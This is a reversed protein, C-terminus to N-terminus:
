PNIQVFPKEQDTQDKSDRVLIAPKQRNWNRDNTIAILGGRNHTDLVIGGSPGGGIGTGDRVGLKVVEEGKGSLLHLYVLKDDGSYGAVLIPKGGGEMLELKSHGAAPRSFRALTQGSLSFSLEDSDVAIVKSKLRLPGSVTLGGGVTLDNGVKAKGDSTLESVPRGDSNRVVVSNAVLDVFKLDAAATVLLVTPFAVMTAILLKRMRALRLELAALREETTM